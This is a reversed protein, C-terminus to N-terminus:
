DAGLANLRKELRSEQHTAMDPHFIGNHSISHIDSKVIKYAAAAHEADGSDIARLSGLKYIRLRSLPLLNRARRGFAQRALKAAQPSYSM